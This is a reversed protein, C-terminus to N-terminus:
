TVYFMLKPLDGVFLQHKEESANLSDFIFQLCQLFIITVPAKYTVKIAPLGKHLSHRAAWTGSKGDPFSGDVLVVKLVREIATDPTLLVIVVVVIGPITNSFIM